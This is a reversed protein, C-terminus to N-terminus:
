EVTVKPQGKFTADEYFEIKYIVAMPFTNSDPNGYRIRCYIRAFFESDRLDLLKNGMDDSVVFNIEDKRLGFNAPFMQKKQCQFAVTYCKAEKDRKTNGFRSGFVGDFYYHGYLYKEPYEVIRKFEETGDQLVAMREKEQRQRERKVKADAEQKAIHQMSAKANKKLRDFFVNATSSQFEGGEIFVSTEEGEKEVKTKYIGSFGPSLRELVSKKVIVITFPTFSGSEDAFQRRNYDSLSLLFAMAKEDSLAIEAYELLRTAEAQNSAAPHALHQNLLEVGKRVNAEASGGVLSVSETLLRKADDLAHGLKKIEEAKRQEEALRAERQRDEASSGSPPAASRDQDHRKTEVIQIAVIAILVVTLLTGGIGVFLVPSRRKAVTAESGRHRNLPPSPSRPNPEPESDDLQPQQWPPVTKVPKPSAPAILGKVKSATVWRGEAGKKIETEPDIEGLRALQLMQSATVPGQTRGTTTRYYWEATM